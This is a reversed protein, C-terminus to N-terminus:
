PNQKKVDNKLTMTVSLKPYYPPRISSVAPILLKRIGCLPLAIDIVVSM